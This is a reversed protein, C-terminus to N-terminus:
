FLVCPCVYTLVLSGGGLVDSLPLSRMAMIFHQNETVNIVDPGIYFIFFFTPHFESKFFKLVNTM